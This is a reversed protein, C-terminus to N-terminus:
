ASSPMRSQRKDRPSPSTYLLCIEGEVASTALVVTSEADGFGDSDTDAFFVVEVPVYDEDIEGNCNNDIGDVSDGDVLVDPNITADGDNCDTNDSVYGEPATPQVIEGGSVTPLLIEVEEPNGFSDQDSDEYFEVPELVDVTLQYDAGNSGGFFLITWDYVRVTWRGGIQAEIPGVSENDSTSNSGAVQRGDPDHLTIDLDSEADIFLLEGSIIDGASAEFSYWDNPDEECTADVIPEGPEIPLASAPDDNSQEPFGCPGEDQAAVSPAAVVGLMMITTILALLVRPRQGQEREKDNM